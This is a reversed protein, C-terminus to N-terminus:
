RGAPDDCAEGAREVTPVGHETRGVAIRECAGDAHVRFWLRGDRVGEVDVVADVAWLWAHRDRARDVVAVAGGPLRGSTTYVRFTWDGFAVVERPVLAAGNMVTWSSEDGGGTSSTWTEPHLPEGGRRWERPTAGVEASAPAYGFALVPIPAATSAETRGAWAQLLAVEEHTPASLWSGSMVTAESVLHNLYGDIELGVTRCSPATVAYLRRQVGAERGMGGTIAEVRWLTEDIRVIRVCTACYARAEDLNESAVVPCAALEPPVDRSPDGAAAAVPLMM